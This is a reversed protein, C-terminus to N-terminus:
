GFVRRKQAITWHFAKQAAEPHRTDFMTMTVGDHEIEKWVHSLVSNVLMNRKTCERIDCLQRYSIPNGDVRVMHNATGCPLDGGPCLAPALLPAAHVLEHRAHRALLYKEDVCVEDEEEVDPSVSPELSDEPSEEPSGEPSPAAADTTEAQRVAPSALAVALLAFLLIISLRSM